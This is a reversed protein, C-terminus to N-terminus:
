GDERQSSDSPLIHFSLDGSKSPKKFENITGPMNIHWMPEKSDDFTIDELYSGKGKSVLDKDSKGPAKLINISILDERNASSEGEKLKEHGGGIGGMWGGLFGRRKPENIDFNVVAKLSNMIDTVIM